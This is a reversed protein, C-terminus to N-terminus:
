RLIASAFTHHKITQQRLKLFLYDLNKYGFGRAIIRAVTGNFREMAANTFGFKLSALLGYKDQLLGKGFRILPKLKGEIAQMVWHSLFKSASKIYTYDWFRRFSEKLIYAACIEKNLKLLAELSTKQSEKLKDSHRFLNYRQGKIFDKKQGKAKSTEARRVQDVADNLNKFIHFKDYVITAQPCFKKVAKPYSANRDMCAFNINKRQKRTMSEFFPKIAEYGKGERMFLLEGTEADLVLTVYRHRKGISKEDILLHHVNDLNIEGFEEMLINMDWRRITDESYPLIEAVNSPSMWRCLEFAFKQLRRTATAKESIGEPMFTKSIGCHSCKGQVTEIHLVVNLATGIPLDNVKRIITRNTGMPRGCIPCKKSKRRDRHIFFNVSDQSFAIRDTIFGNFRFLIGINEIKMSTFNAEQYLTTIVNIIDFM